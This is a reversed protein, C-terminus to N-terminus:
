FVNLYPVIEGEGFKLFFTIYAMSVIFIYAMVKLNIDSTNFNRLLYPYVLIQCIAFYLILRAGFPVRIFFNLFVVYIFFIKIYISINKESLLFLFLISNVILLFLLNGVINGYNYDLIYSSYGIFGIIKSFVGVGFMGFLLSVILSLYINKKEWGIKALYLFIFIFASYHFTSALFILFLFIKIRNNLFAALSLFIISIAISQRMINFSYFYFYFLYYFLITLMPNYSYKKAVYFIPLLTLAASIVLLDRFEGNFFIVVDNLFIWGFELESRIWDAGSSLNNFATEYNLTDTGVSVSRYALIYFMLLFSVLIFIGQKVKPFFAGFLMFISVSLFFSM